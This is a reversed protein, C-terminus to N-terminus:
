KLFGEQALGANNVLVDVVVKEKYLKQVEKKTQDYDDISFELITIKQYDSVKCSEVFSRFEQTISRVSCILDFNNKILSETVKKGIGRNAGTVFATKRISM